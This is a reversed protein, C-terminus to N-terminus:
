HTPISAPMNINLTDISLNHRSIKGNALYIVDEAINTAHDGIREIIRSASFVHLYGSMNEPDTRMQDSLGSIISQNIADVSDDQKIVTEALTKDVSIFAKHSNRLMEIVMELMRELGDPLNIQPYAELSKTREAINVALDAIRELDGNIKLIAAIRRLDIAVPQHLALLELCKEEIDVELRNVLDERELVESAMNVSGDHLARYGALVMKEVVELQQSLMSELDSIDSHFHKM